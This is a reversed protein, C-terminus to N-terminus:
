VNRVALMALDEKLFSLTFNCSSICLFSGPNQTILADSEVCNIQYKIILIEFSKELLFGETGMVM